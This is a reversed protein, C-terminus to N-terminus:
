IVCNIPDTEIRCGRRKGDARGSAIVEVNGRAVAVQTAAGLGTGLLLGVAYQAFDQANIDVHRVVAIGIGTVVVFIKRDRGGIGNREPIGIMRCVLLEYTSMEGIGTPGGRRRIIWVRRYWIVEECRLNIESARSVREAHAKIALGAVKPHAIDALISALFDI